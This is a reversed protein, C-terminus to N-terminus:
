KYFVGSFMNKNHQISVFYKEMIKCMDKIYSIHFCLNVRNKKKLYVITPFNFTSLVGFVMSAMSFFYSVIFSPLYLGFFQVARCFTAMSMGNRSLSLWKLIKRFWMCVKRIFCCSSYPIYTTSCTVMSEKPFNM